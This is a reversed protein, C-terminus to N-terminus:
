SSHFNPKSILARAGGRGGYRSVLKIIRQSRTSEVPLTSAMAYGYLNNVDFYMLYSDRINPNYEKMYKNNAIVHRHSCQSLGGRIGGEIFLLKDADLLLELEIETYKLMANFSLGPLTYYHAPDLDYTKLCFYRFNEFIDALLLVDTRLYLDSYEGLNKLKFVRWVNCAHAYDDDSVHEENLQSYFDLKSPLQEEDFKEWCDIYDYPFIGKKTILKFEELNDCYSRSISKDNDDLENALTSISSAMFKYSDIFRLKIRTGKVRKTFSIYSEKNLALLDIDGPFQKKLAKILFHSDYNSLGHFVVAIICSTQYNLNCAVHAPGRYVGSLHCHDRAKINEATFLKKCIHCKTANFFQLEEDFTLNMPKINELINDVNHSLEELEKIFWEICNKDRKLKFKSLTNDYSCKVYYAVSSPIHKQKITKKLSNNSNDTVKELISELDAYVVYPVRLQYKYNTFKLINNKETPMVMAYQNKERCAPNHSDISKQSHFYSLCRDCIFKKGNYASVQASILRSLNKIYAFHHNSFEGLKRKNTINNFDYEDYDEDDEDEEEEEDDEDASEDQFGEVKKEPKEIILLHITPHNSADNNSLYYPVIRELRRKKKKKNTGNSDDVSDGEEDNSEDDLDDTNDIGYVNIRLNNNKEFQKIKCWSMPFTIGALNLDNKYREYSSVRNPHPVKHMAALVSWIFCNNDKYNIVNVVSKTKIIWDPMEIFTSSGGRLPVYDNINIELHLIEHLTWGSGRMEKEELDAKLIEFNNSLIDDLNSSQLIEMCGDSFYKTEIEIEEQKVIQFNCALITNLKIASKKSLENELRDILMVKADELFLNELDSWQIRADIADAHNQHMTPEDVMGGKKQLHELKCKWTTLLAVTAGTM